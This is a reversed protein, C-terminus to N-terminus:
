PCSSWTRQSDQDAHPDREGPDGPFPERLVSSGLPHDELAVHTM